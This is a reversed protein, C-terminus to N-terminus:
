QGYLVEQIQLLSSMVTWVSGGTNAVSQEDSDM